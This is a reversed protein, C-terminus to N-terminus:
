DDGNFFVFEMEQGEVEVHEVSPKEIGGEEIVKVKAFTKLLSASMKKKSEETHKFNWKTKTNAIKDRREQYKPNLRCNVVHGGLSVSSPWEKNCYQCIYHLKPSEPKKHEHKWRIHNKLGCAKIFKHCVPCERLGQIENYKKIKDDIGIM